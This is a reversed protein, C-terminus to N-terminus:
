DISLCFLFEIIGDVKNDYFYSIIWGGIYLERVIFDDLIFYRYCLFGVNWVMELYGILYEFVCNM